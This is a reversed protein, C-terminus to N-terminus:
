REIRIRLAEFTDPLRVIIAGQNITWGSAQAELAEFAVRAVPQDNMVVRKPEGDWPVSVELSRAAPRYAGSSAGIEITHVGDAAGYVMRRVASQGRTYDLTEGDDDYFSAEATPAPFIRLRLPKGSMEGTHQVVPQMFLVAGARVFIPLSALTVPVRIRTGGTHRQGTWFDFWEGKPLYLERETMGPRLVPAVLLDSGFMFQDEIGYTNPDGPYELLLPRLAPLGTLSAERMVNYIHPLLEYRLEIARRNVAEHHTGYSWPEQDPTGFTTHSRMFPYFVGAQLWRTYLEATPAESFGGIDSGVFALGSLGMGMLTAISGRLHGWDSVNDGPWVAAYRQGGAFTARTL